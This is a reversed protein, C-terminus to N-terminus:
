EINRSQRGGWRAKAREETNQEPMEREYGIYLLSEPIRPVSEPTLVPPAEAARKHEVRYRDRPHIERRAAPPADPPRV